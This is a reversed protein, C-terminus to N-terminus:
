YFRFDFDLTQDANCNIDDMKVCCTTKDYIDAFVQGKSVTAWAHKDKQIMTKKLKLILSTINKDQIYMVCFSFSDSLPKNLQMSLGGWDV